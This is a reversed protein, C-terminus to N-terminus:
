ANLDVWNPNLTWATGDFTYKNGTWDAPVNTVNDTITVTTSNLDAIVFKVIDEGNVTESVTIKTATSFLNIEDALAYKALGSSTEVIIRM